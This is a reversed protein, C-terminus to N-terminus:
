FDIAISLQSKLFDKTTTEHNDYNMLKPWSVDIVTPWPKAWPICCIPTNLKLHVTNILKFNPTSYERVVLKPDLTYRTKRLKLKIKLKLIIKPIISPKIWTNQYEVVWGGGGASGSIYLRVEGLPWRKVIAVKKRGPPRFFGYMSEQKCGRQLPWRRRGVDVETELTAM